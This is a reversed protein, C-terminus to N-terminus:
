VSLLLILRSLRQSLYLFALRPTFVAGVRISYCNGLQHRLRGLNIRNGVFSPQIFLGHDYVCPTLTTVALCNRWPYLCSLCPM